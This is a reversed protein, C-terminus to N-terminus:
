SSLCFRPFAAAFGFLEFLLWQAVSETSSLRLFSLQLYDIKEKVM